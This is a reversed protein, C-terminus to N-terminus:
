RISSWLDVLTSWTNENSQLATKLRKVCRSIYVGVQPEPIDRDRAIDKYSKEGQFRHQLLGYCPEGLATLEERLLELAHWRAETREESRTQETWQEIWVRVVAHLAGADEPNAPTEEYFDEPKRRRIRDVCRRFTLTQVFAAVNDVTDINRALNMLAEQCIDQIEHPPFGMRQARRRILPICFAYLSEWAKEDGDRCRVVLEAPSPAVSADTVAYDSPQNRNTVM